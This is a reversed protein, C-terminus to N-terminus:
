IIRWLKCVPSQVGSLASELSDEGTGHPMPMCTGDLTCQLTKLTFPIVPRHEQAVLM